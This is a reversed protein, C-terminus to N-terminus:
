VTQSDKIKKIQQLHKFLKKLTRKKKQNFIISKLSEKLRGKVIYVWHVLYNLSNQKVQPNLNYNGKNFFTEM